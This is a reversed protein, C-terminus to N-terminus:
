SIRRIYVYYKQSQHVLIFSLTADFSRLGNLMLDLTGYYFEVRYYDKASQHHYQNGPTEDIRTSVRRRKPLLLPEDIELEACKAEAKIFYEDYSGESRKNQLVEQLSIIM